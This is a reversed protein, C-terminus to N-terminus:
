AEGGRSMARAMSLYKMNRPCEMHKDKQQSFEGM